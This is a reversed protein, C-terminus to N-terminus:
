FFTIYSPFSFSYVISVQLQPLNPPSLDKEGIGECVPHANLVTDKSIRNKNKVQERAHQVQKLDKPKSNAEIGETKENILSKYVKHASKTESLEKQKQIVSQKTRFHFRTQRKSNGHVSPKSLSDQGIYHVIVSTLEQCILFFFFDM